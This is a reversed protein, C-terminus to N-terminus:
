VVTLFHDIFSIYCLLQLPLHIFRYPNSDVVESSMVDIKARTKKEKKKSADLEDSLAAVQEKLSEITAYLQEKEAMNNNYHDIIVQLAVVTTFHFLLVEKSRL